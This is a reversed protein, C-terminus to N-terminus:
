KCYGSHVFSLVAQALYYMKATSKSLPRLKFCGTLNVAVGDQSINTGDLERSLLVTM